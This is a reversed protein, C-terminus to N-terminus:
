CPASRRLELLSQLAAQHDHGYIYSGAVLVDAGAEVCLSGTDRTIGGDVEILFDLKQAARRNQLWRVKDIMAPMFSQGGFGPEVTMVLVLDVLALYPQLREVPTGPRLSLGAKMQLKRIDGLVAVVDEECEVHITINDSGSDKYAQIFRSPHTVMLHTDIFKDTIDAVHRQIAPGFSLNPVFHGDM